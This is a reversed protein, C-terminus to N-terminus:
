ICQNTMMEGNGMFIAIQRYIWNEPVDIGGFMMSIYPFLNHCISIIGLCWQSTNPPPSQPRTARPILSCPMPICPMPIEGISPKVVIAPTRDRHISCTSTKKPRVGNQHRVCVDEWITDRGRRLRDVHQPEFSDDIGLSKGLSIISFMASLNRITCTSFIPIFGRCAKCHRCISQRQCQTKQAKRWGEYRDLGRTSPYPFCPFLMFFSFTQRIRGHWLNLRCNPFAWLSENKQSVFGKPRQAKPDKPGSQLANCPIAFCTCSTLSTSLVISSPM